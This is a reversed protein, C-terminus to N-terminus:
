QRVSSLCPRAPTGCEPLTTAPPDRAGAVGAAPRSPKPGAAAKDNAPPATEDPLVAENPEEDSLVAENPEGDSLYPKDDEDSPIFVPPEDEAFQVANGSENLDLDTLRLLDEPIPDAFGQAIQLMALLALPTLLERLRPPM